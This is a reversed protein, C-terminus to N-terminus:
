MLVASAARRAIVELVTSIPVHVSGIGVGVVITVLLGLVLLVWVVAARPAVRRPAMAPVEAVPGSARRPTLTHLM